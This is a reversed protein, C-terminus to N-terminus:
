GELLVELLADFMESSFEQSKLLKDLAALGHRSELTDQLAPIRHLSLAKMLVLVVVQWQTDKIAPIPTPFHMSALLEYLHKEVTSRPVCVRMQRVISPVVRAFITSMTKLMQQSTGLIQSQRLQRDACDESALYARTSETPWSELLTYIAGFPSMEMRFDDEDDSIPEEAHLESDQDDVGDDSSSSQDKDPQERYDQALYSSDSRAAAQLQDIPQPHSPDIVKLRGFQSALDNAAGELPGEADDIEFSIVPVSAPLAELDLNGLLPPQSSGDPQAAPQQSAPSSQPQQARHHQQEASNSGTCSFCAKGSSGTDKLLADASSSAAAQVSTVSAPKTSSSQYAKIPAQAAPTSPLVPMSHDSMAAQKRMSAKAKLANTPRPKPIFGDVAHAASHDGAATIISQQKLAAAAAFAEDASPDKEKIEALMIPNKANGAAYQPAAKSGKRPAHSASGVSDKVKDEPQKSPTQSAAARSPADHSPPLQSPSQSAKPSPNREVVTDSLAPKPAPVLPQDPKVPHTFRYLAADENGLKQAIMSIVSQCKESCTCRSEDEMDYVVGGQLKYHAAPKHSQLGQPCRPNGCIGALAREEAIQLFEDGSLNPISRLLDADSFAGHELLQEMARYVAKKRTESANPTQSQKSAKPKQASVQKAGAPPKGKATQAAQVVHTALPQSSKQRTTTVEARGAERDDANHDLVPLFNM